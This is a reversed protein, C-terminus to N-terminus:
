SKNMPSSHDTYVTKKIKLPAGKGTNSKQIIEPLMNDLFNDASTPVSFLKSKGGLPQDLWDLRGTRRLNKFQDPNIGWLKCLKKSDYEINSDGRDSIQKGTMVFKRRDNFYGPLHGAEAHYRIKSLSLVICVKHKIEDGDYTYWKDDEPSYYPDDKTIDDEPIDPIDLIVKIKSYVRNMENGIATYGVFEKKDYEDDSM